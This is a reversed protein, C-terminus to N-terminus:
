SYWFCKFKRANKSLASESSATSFALLIPERIMRFLTFVRRGLVLAGILLLAGWLISLSLYFQGMFTGYTSLIGM